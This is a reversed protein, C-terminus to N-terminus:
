ERGLEKKMQKSYKSMEAGQRASCTPCQPQVADLSHMRTTDITGTEYYEKVLPIKHDAVQKSTVAGCDVCPQGQVSARQEVTTAGSPRKYPKTINISSESALTAEKSAASLQRAMKWQTFAQSIGVGNVIFYANLAEVDGENGGLGDIIVKEEAWNIGESITGLSNTVGNGLLGIINFADNFISLITNDIIPVGINFFDVTSFIDYQGGTNPSWYATNGSPDTYVLPNNYCYSYRNLRQPKYFYPVESDASIFRGIVPDYLRADYNYLGSESDLEQDTYLYDSTNAGSHSRQSGFPLYETAEVKTGSSNTMATSSGVHDKHYVTATSDEVEAVRLNGAFIYKIPTGDKIEYDNSIYYTTTGGAVKKARKGDGDYTLDTTSSGRTVTVPMNDANWTLGREVINNPDTLDWGDKM